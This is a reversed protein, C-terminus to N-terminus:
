KEEVLMTRKTLVEQIGAWPIRILRRGLRVSPLTGRKCMRRVTEPCTKMLRSTEKITLWERCNENMMAEELGNIIVLISM